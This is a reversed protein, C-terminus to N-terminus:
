RALRRQHLGIALGVLVLLSGALGISWVLADVRASRGTAPLVQPIDAPLQGPTTTAPLAESTSEPSPQSVEPAAESM